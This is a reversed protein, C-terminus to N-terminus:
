REFGFIDLVGIITEGSTAQPIGNGGGGGLARNIKKMLWDFLASYVAKSMADRAQQAQTLSYAVMTVSRTGINRWTLARTILECDLGVLAAALALQPPNSVRSGDDGNVKVEIEFKVNGFHLVAAVTKFIEIQDGSSIGLTGMAEKVQM